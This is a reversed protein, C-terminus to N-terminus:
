PLGKTITEMYDTLLQPTEAYAEFINLLQEQNLTSGDGFSFRIKEKVIHKTKYSDLLIKRIIVLLFEMEYKGRFVSHQEVVRFLEIKQNLAAEKIEVAKPFKDKLSQIDYNQTVKHLDISIFENLTSKKFSVGTKIGEKNRKDILCAYWANLLLIASHFEKQRMEYLNLLDDVLQKDTIESLHFENILVDKFVRLSVYLNEISYCPTEFIPPTKTGVSEDFDRDIFFGSKYKKYESKNVILTYVGLVAEKNGCKIIYYADTFRKIRPVYYSNDKGEFFCFLHNQRGGTALMFEQFAVQPKNRSERLEDIYM